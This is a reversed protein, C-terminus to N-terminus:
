SRPAPHTEKWSTGASVHNIPLILLWRATERSEEMEAGSVCEAAAKTGHHLLFLQGGDSQAAANAAM